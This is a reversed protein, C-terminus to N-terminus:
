PVLWDQIMTLGPIGAYDQVNHTVLTLQQVLATAGNLLDLEPRPTGADLLAARIEGFRRAVASTVDLVVVLKLLDQVGQVRSPPAQARLAWTLLEGLTVTSMALGGGYPIFRNFVLPNGKIYASCTDTDLLFRV